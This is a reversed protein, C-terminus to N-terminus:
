TYNNTNADSNITGLQNQPVTNSLDTGKNRGNDSNFTGGIVNETNSTGGIVNDSSKDRNGEIVQKNTGLNQM